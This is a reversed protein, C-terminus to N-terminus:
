TNKIIIPVLIYLLITLVLIGVIIKAKLSRCYMIKRVQISKKQFMQAGDRLMDSKTEINQLSEANDLVQLV